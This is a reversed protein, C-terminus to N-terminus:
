DQRSSPDPVLWECEQDGADALVRGTYDGGPRSFRYTQRNDNTFGAFMGVEAEGSEVPFTFVNVFVSVFEAPFLIVLNGDAEAEPKWLFGGAGDISQVGVCRPNEGFGAGTDAPVEENIITTTTESKDGSKTGGVNLDCGSSLLLALACFIKRM